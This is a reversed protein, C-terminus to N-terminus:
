YDTGCYKDQSGQTHARLTRAMYNPKYGTEAIVKLVRQKTQESVNSKGNLINSVTAISVECKAALEKLTIM